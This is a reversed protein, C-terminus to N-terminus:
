TLHDIAATVTRWAAAIQARILPRALPNAMAVGQSFALGSVANFLQEQTSATSGTLSNLPWNLPASLYLPSLDTGYVTEVATIAAPATAWIV